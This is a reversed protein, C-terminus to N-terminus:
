GNKKKIIIDIMCHCVALHVIEVHGYEPSPVYFNIEGLKRLPNDEAFGSFTIVKLGKKKALAAACLINESQGSSSIAILSDGPEAFMEVPKEFVHEYGYDNSICTLLSSDNFALARMGANKCFDTAMHSAISASGGNGIFLLKGGAKAQEIIMKISGQLAEDLSFAAGEKDTACVADFLEKLAQRSERIDNIM